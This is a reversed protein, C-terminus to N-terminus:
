KESWNPEHKAGTKSVNGQSREPVSRASSCKKAACGPVAGTSPPWSLPLPSHSQAPLQDCLSFTSKM